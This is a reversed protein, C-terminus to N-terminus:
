VAIVLFTVLFNSDPFEEGFRELILPGGFFIFEFIM